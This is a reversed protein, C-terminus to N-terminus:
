EAEIRSLQGTKLLTLYDKIEKDTMDLPLKNYFLSVQAIARLYNKYTLESRGPLIVKQFFEQKFLTFGEVQAEYRSVITRKEM